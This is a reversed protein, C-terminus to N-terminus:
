QSSRMVENMESRLARLAATIDCRDGDDVNCLGSSNIRHRDTRKIYNVIADDADAWAARYGDRWEDLEAM